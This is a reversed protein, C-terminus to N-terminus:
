PKKGKTIFHEAFFLLATVFSILSILILLLVLDEEAYESFACYILPNM